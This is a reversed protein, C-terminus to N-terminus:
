STGTPHPGGAVGSHTHTSVYRAVVGEAGRVGLAYWRARLHAREQESLDGPRGLFTRRNRALTHVAVAVSVSLNLSQTFGAMPISFAGDCAAIAADSLGAHENGFVAALPRSVDLDDVALPAGPVAAYLAFGASRLAAACGAVNRYRNVKLWKECGITVGRAFRFPENPQAVYVAALGEAEISRLAAAGNHPDYLDEIAVTLSDLRADLVREIRRAREDSTLERLADVILAAGHEEILTDIPDVV